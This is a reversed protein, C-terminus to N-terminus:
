SAAFELRFDYHLRRAAHKQMRYILSGAERMAPEELSERAREYALSKDQAAHFSRGLCGAGRMLLLVASSWRTHRPLERPRLPRYTLCPSAAEVAALLAGLAQLRAIDRAEDARIGLWPAWSSIHDLRRIRPATPTEEAM